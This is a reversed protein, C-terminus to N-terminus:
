CPRPDWRVDDIWFTADAGGTGGSAPSVAVVFLVKVRGLDAGPAPGAFRALPICLRQWGPGPAFGVARSLASKSSEVGAPVNGSRVGVELDVPSRVSLKLSGGAYASLDRTYGDDGARAGPGWAVYWGAFGPGSASVTTRLSEKGEARVRTDRAVERLVAGGGSFTGIFVDVDPQLRQGSESYIGLGTDSAVDVLVDGCNILAVGLLAAAIRPIRFLAPGRRARLMSANM